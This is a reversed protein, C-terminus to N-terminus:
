SFASHDSVANAIIQDIDPMSPGNTEPIVEVTTAETDPIVEKNDEEEENGSGEPEARMNLSM